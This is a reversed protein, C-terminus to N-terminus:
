PSYPARPGAGHALILPAMSIRQPTSNALMSQINPHTPDLAKALTWPSYPGPGQGPLQTWPWPPLQTPRDMWPGPWPTLDLPNPRNSQLTLHATRTHSVSEPGHRTHSMRQDPPVQVRQQSHM